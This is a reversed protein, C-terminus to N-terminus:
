IETMKRMEIEIPELEDERGFQRLRERLEELEEKLQPLVEKQLKERVAEGSRGMEEGLRKLEEELNKFEESEPISQLEESFHEFQKKLGGFGDLLENLIQDVFASTKSSGEVVSNNKLPSGDKRAQTIEVAMKDTDRPDSIIFFRSHETAADVFDKNIVIGITYYGEKSYFVETVNGIHNQQFIVRDGKQLGYIQDFKIKVNLLNEKCAFLAVFLILLIIIKKRLHGNIRGANVKESDWNHRAVFSHEFMRIGLNLLQRTQRLHLAHSICGYDAVAFIEYRLLNPLIPL